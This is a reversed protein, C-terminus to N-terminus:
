TDRIILSPEFVVVEGPKRRGEIVDILYDAGARGMETTPQRVTSLAPIIYRTPWNDDYAVLRYDKGAQYGHMQAARLVEVAHTTSTAFIGEPITEDEFVRTMVQRTDDLRQEITKHRDTVKIVRPAPLGLDKLRAAFAEGRQPVGHGKTDLTVVWSKRIGLAYFHSAVLNGGMVNDSLIRTVKPHQSPRGLLVVNIGSDALENITEDTLKNNASGVFALSNVGNAGLVDRHFTMPSTDDHLHALLIRYGRNAATREFAEVIDVSYPDQLYSIGLVILKRHKSRLQSAFFNTRYGMKAAAKLIRERTQPNVREHGSLARHVTVQSIGLAEALQTQTVPESSQQKVRVMRLAKM